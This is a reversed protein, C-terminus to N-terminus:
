SFTYLPVNSYPVTLKGKEAKAAARLEGQRGPRHHAAQSARSEVRPHIASGAARAPHRIILTCVTSSLISTISNKIIINTSVIEPENWSFHFSM